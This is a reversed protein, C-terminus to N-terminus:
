VEPELHLFNACTSLPGSQGPVDIPVIKLLRGRRGIEVPLGTALVEDLTRASNDHVKSATLPM